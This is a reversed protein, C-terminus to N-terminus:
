RDAHVLAAKVLLGADTARAVRLGGTMEVRWDGGPPGRLPIELRGGQAVIVARPVDAWVCPGADATGSDPMGELGADAPAAGGDGGGDPLSPAESCAHLLAGVISVLAWGARVSEGM